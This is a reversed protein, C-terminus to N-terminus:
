PNLFIQQRMKLFGFSKLVFKQDNQADM